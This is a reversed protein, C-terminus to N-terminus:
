PKSKLRALRIRADEISKLGEDAHKWIDLFTEYQEIAKDNWGSKEYAMGLWYHSKVADIGYWVRNNDYRQMAQEFMTVANALKGAESYSRAIMLKTVFVPIAEDSKKFYIAASDFNGEAFEM